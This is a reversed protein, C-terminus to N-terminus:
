QPNMGGDMTWIVQEGRRVEIRTIFRLPYVDDDGSEDAPRHEVSAQHRAAGTAAAPDAAIEDNTLDTLRMQRIV